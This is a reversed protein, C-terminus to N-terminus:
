AFALAVTTLLSVHHLPGAVLMAAMRRGFDFVVAVATVFYSAWLRRILWTRNVPVVPLDFYRPEKSRISM